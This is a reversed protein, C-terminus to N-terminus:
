QIYVERIHFFGKKIIIMFFFEFFFMLKVQNLKWGPTNLIFALTITFTSFYNLFLKLFTSQIEKPNRNTAKLKQCIKFDSLWEFLKKKIKAVDWLTSLPTAKLCNMEVLTRKMDNCKQSGNDEGKAHFKIHWATSAAMSKQNKSITEHKIEEKKM